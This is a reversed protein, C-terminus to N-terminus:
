YSFEYLTYDNECPPGPAVWMRGATLDMVNSSVTAPSSPDDDRPHACVSAPFGHHDRLADQIDAVEVTGRRASLHDRVRCDRYLTSPHKAPLRDTLEAQARPNLFHNSHALVGADPEVTFVDDPVAELDIATGESASALMHNGSMDRPADVIERVAADLAHHRLARRRAVAGPVGDDADRERDSSLSNGVIGIGADTMGNRYLIGAETVFLLAPEGVVHQEIVVTHAGCRAFKDWNQALLTNGEASAEPLVATTTCEPTVLQSAVDARRLVGSRINLAYIARPDLEAGDAIGDLEDALGPDHDRIRRGAGDAVSLLEPWPPAGSAEFTERYLALCHAIQEGFARGHSRGVDFASGESRVFPFTTIPEGRTDLM